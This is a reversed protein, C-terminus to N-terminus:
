LPRRELIALLAGYRPSSDEHNYPIRTNLAAAAGRHEPDHEFHFEEKVSLEPSFKRTVDWGLIQPEAATPKPHIDVVIV